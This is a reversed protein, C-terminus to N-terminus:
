AFGKEALMHALQTAKEYMPNDHKIRASGLVTVAAGVEALTDFGSVFEGMIRLVRWTDSRTFDAPAPQPKRLLQEDETPAGMRNARNLNINPKLPANLSELDRSSSTLPKQTGKISGGDGAAKNRNNSRKM